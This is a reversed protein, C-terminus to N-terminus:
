YKCPNFNKAIDSEYEESYNIQSKKCKVTISVKGQFQQSVSQLLPKQSKIIYIDEKNNIEHHISIINYFDEKNNIEHDGYNVKAKALNDM